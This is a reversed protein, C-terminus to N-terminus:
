KCEYFTITIGGIRMGPTSSLYNNENLFAFPGDVRTEFVPVLGGSGISGCNRVIIFEGESPSLTYRADLGSLQYDAGGPLIKAKVRGSTTGGTIPIINRTGRKSPGISISTGLRVNETFVTAGKTGTLKLCEWTQNPVKEPNTIKIRTETSAVKSIDFVDLQITKAVTDVIREAAYKGTNLWAYSSANPAEFDLVVRVLETVAPAVGANRMLIPTNGARLIVIQELEISGNSLTLEYELGGDLVLGEIRDGTVTGGEIDFQRRHGFKTIGVDHIARYQLTIGFVATGRRPPPIGDPMFCTWSPDPIITADGTGSASTDELLISMGAQLYSDLPVHASRYGNKVVLLSDFPVSATKHKAVVVPEAGTDDRLQHMVETHAGTGTISALLRVARCSEPTDFLCVYMGPTLRPPYIRWFGRTLMGSFVVTRCGGSLDFIRILAPGDTEHQYLLQDANIVPPSGNYGITPELLSTGSLTFKGGPGTVTAINLGVINVRAGVVPTMTRSDSVTGSIDVTGQSFSVAVAVFIFYITKLMVSNM